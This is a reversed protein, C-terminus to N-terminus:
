ARGFQSSADRTASSVFLRKRVVHRTSGSSNMRGSSKGATKKKKKKGELSWKERELLHHLHHHSASMNDRERDILTLLGPHGRSPTTEYAKEERFPNRPTFHKILLKRLNVLCYYLDGQCLFKNRSNKAPNILSRGPKKLRRNTEIVYSQSEREEKSIYM